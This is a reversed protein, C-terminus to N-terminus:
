EAAGYVAAVVYNEYAKKATETNSSVCYVVYVGDATLLANKLKNSEPENYAAYIDAMEARYKNIKEYAAAADEASACRICLVAEATAGTSGYSVIEEALSTINYLSGAIDNEMQVLNADDFTAEALLQEALRSLPIDAATMDVSAFTKPADDQTQDCGSLLLAGATLVALAATYVSRFHM